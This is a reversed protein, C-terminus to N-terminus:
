IRKVKHVILITVTDKLGDDNKVLAHVVKKVPGLKM